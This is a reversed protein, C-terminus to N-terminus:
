GDFGWRRTRLPQFLLSAARSGSVPVPVTKLVGRKSSVTGTGTKSDM